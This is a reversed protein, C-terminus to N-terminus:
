LLLDGEDVLPPLTQDVMTNTLVGKTNLYASIKVLEMCKTYMAPHCHQWFNCPRFFDLCSERNRCANEETLSHAVKYMTEIEKFTAEPHLLSAPIFVEYVNSHVRNGYALASEGAKIVISPKVCVNYRVGAFMKPDLKLKEAVQDAFHAYLNLQKNAALKAFLTEKVSSATKLDGIYWWGNCDSLVMDIYGVFWENGVEVECAIVKLKSKERVPFYSQVMAMVIYASEQDLEQEKCADDFMQMTFKTADHNSWELCAHHASGIRLATTDECADEDIPVQKIYQLLYKYNCTQLVDAASNSFRRAEHPKNDRVRAM